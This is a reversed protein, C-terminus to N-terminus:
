LCLEGIAVDSNEAEGELMSQAAFWKVVEEKLSGQLSRNKIAWSEFIEQHIKV